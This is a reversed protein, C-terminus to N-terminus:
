WQGSRVLEIARLAAIEQATLGSPVQGAREPAAFAVALRRVHRRLIQGEVVADPEIARLDVCEAMARACGVADSCRLDFHEQRHEIMELATQYADDGDAVPGAVNNALERARDSSGLFPLAAQAMARALAHPTM